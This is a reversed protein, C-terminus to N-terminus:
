EAGGTEGLLTGVTVDLAKAIYWYTLMPSTRNGERLSQVSTRSVGAKKALGNISVGRLMSWKKINKGIEEPSLMDNKPTPAEALIDSVPVGVAESYKYLTAMLPYNKGSEIRGIASCDCDMLEAMRYQSINKIKRINRLREGLEKSTLMKEQERKDKGAVGRLSM